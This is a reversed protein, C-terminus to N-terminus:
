KAGYKGTGGCYSCDHSVDGGSGECDECIDRSSYYATGELVKLFSDMDQRSEPHIFMCRRDIQFMWRNLESTYTVAAHRPNTESPLDKWELSGFTSFGNLALWYKNPKFM